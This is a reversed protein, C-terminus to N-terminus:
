TMQATQLRAPTLSRFIEDHLFEDSQILLKPLETFAWATVVRPGVAVWAFFQVSLNSKLMNGIIFCILAAKNLVLPFGPCFQGPHSIALGDEM